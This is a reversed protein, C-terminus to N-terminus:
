GGRAELGHWVRVIVVEDGEVRYRIVYGKAGFRVGWERFRMDPEWPKGQGPFEGLQETAEIITVVARHAADASLPELFAHLRKLDDLAGPLWRIAAM